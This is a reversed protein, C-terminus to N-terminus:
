CPKLHNISFYSTFKSECKGFPTWEVTTTNILDCSFTNSGNTINYGHFCRVSCKSLYDRSCPLQIYGNDPPNLQPCQLPCCLTPVGSWFRTTQCTRQSSGILQYGVDCSYSCTSNTKIGNSCSLSGNSPTLLTHCTVVLSYLITYYFIHFCVM